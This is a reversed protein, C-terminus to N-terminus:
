NSCYVIEVCNEPMEFSRGCTSSSESCNYSVSIQVSAHGCRRITGESGLAILVCALVAPSIVHITNLEVYDQRTLQGSDVLSIIPSTSALIDTITFASILRLGRSRVKLEGLLVHQAQSLLSCWM